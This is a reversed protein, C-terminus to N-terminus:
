SYRSLTLMFPSIMLFKLNEGNTKPWTSPSRSLKKAAKGIGKGSYPM